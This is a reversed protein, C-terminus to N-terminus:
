GTISAHWVLYVNLLVFVVFSTLALKRDIVKSREARNTVQLHRSLLAAVLSCLLSFLTLSHIKDALTFSATQGLTAGVRQLNVVVAFVMGVLLGIRGNFIGDKSTDLFYSVLSILFAIYVAAFLKLFLGMGDREVFISVKSTAYTSSPANNLGFSSNYTHKGTDISVKSVHWGDVVMAPDFGTNTADVEYLLKSADKDGEELRITLEHRDFPFNSVDWSHNFVGRVKAAEYSDTELEEKVSVGQKFDRANITELTKFPQLKQAKDQRFWLWLDATFTNNNSNLDYLSTLYVGTKVKVPAKAPAPAIPAGSPQAESAPAASAAPAPASSAAAQVASAKAALPQSAEASLAAAFPFASLTATLAVLLLGSRLRITLM